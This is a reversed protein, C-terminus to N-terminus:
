INYHKCGNNIARWLHHSKYGGVPSYIHIDEFKKYVQALHLFGSDAGVHYRAKSMAYGADALSTHGGVYVIEYGQSKYNNEIKNTLIESFTRREDTSDWQMTVFKNPLQHISKIPNLLIPKKLYQSIELAVVTENPHMNKTDKYYYIEAEYGNNHLYKLWENEPLNEVPHNKIFVKDKPYLTLIENWSKIKKDSKVDNAISWKDDTLHITVPTDHALSYQYALYVSHLRDGLGPCTYPRDGSRISKSRLAIHKM